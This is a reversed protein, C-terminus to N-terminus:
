WNSGTNNMNNDDIDDEKLITLLKEIKDSMLAQIIYCIEDLEISSIKVEKIGQKKVAENKQLIHMIANDINVKVM